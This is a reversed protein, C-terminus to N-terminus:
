AAQAYWSTRGWWGRPSPGGSGSPFETKGSKAPFSAHISAYGQVDDAAHRAWAKGPLRSRAGAITALAVGIVRKTSDM